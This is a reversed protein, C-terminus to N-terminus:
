RLAYVAAARPRASPRGHFLDSLGGVTLGGITLGGVALCAVAPSGEIRLRKEGRHVVAAGDGLIALAIDDEQLGTRGVGDEVDLLALDLDHDRGLLALFRHHRDEPRAVEEALAAQDALRQAQRGSPGHDLAFHHPYRLALHDTDQVGFRRKALQERGVQQGAVAPDLLVEDVLEEVGAFLAQGARQEEQRIEALIAPRLGNRGGDALLRQGLDDARCARADALEHVFEPLQAEDVVVAVQFDVGRQQTDDQTVLRRVGAGRHNEHNHVLSCDGGPDRGITGSTGRVYPGKGRYGAPPRSGHQMQDLWRLAATEVNEYGRGRHGAVVFAQAKRRHQAVLDEIGRGFGGAVADGRQGRIQEIDRDRDDAEDVAVADPELRMM